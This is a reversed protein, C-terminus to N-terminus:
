EPRDLSPPFWSTRAVPSGVEIRERGHIVLEGQEQEAVDCARRIAEDWTDFSEQQDGAVELAWRNGLPVVHVDSM